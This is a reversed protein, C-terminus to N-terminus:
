YDKFEKMWLPWDEPKVGGATTWPNATDFQGNWELTWLGKLGIRRTSWDLFLGNVHGDHRNICSGRGRGSWTPGTSDRFRELPGTCDLLAPIRARNRLSFVDLGRWPVRTQVPLSMDFNHDFLSYNIGYSGRFRPLPNTIEWAEFTSGATGEIRYPGVSPGAVAGFVSHRGPKVATPCCAIDETRIYPYVFPARPDGDGLVAGRVLWLADGPRGPFRGQNDEAYFAFAAGWQRLNAQCVVARSQGKVRQLAPLFVAILLAIISIVVLLEILTFANRGLPV